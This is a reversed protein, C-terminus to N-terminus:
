FYWRKANLYRSILRLAVVLGTAQFMVLWIAVEAYWATIEPLVFVGIQRVSEESIMRSADTV